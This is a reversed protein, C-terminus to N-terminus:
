HGYIRTSFGVSASFRCTAGAIERDCDMRIQVDKLYRTFRGLLDKLMETFFQSAIFQDLTGYNTLHHISLVKYLDYRESGTIAYFIM